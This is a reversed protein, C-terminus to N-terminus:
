KFIRIEKIKSDKKFESPKLITMDSVFEPGDEKIFDNGDLFFQIHYLQKTDIIYWGSIYTYWISFDPYAAMFEEITSHLGINEATKYKESLIRIEQIMDSSDEVYDDISLMEQGNESVTHVFVEYYNDGEPKDGTNKTISYNDTQTPFKQGTLFIDVGNDKILYKEGDSTEINEVPMEPMKSQMEEQKKTAQGCSSAILALVSLIIVAKKM